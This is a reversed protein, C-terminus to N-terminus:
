CAYANLPLSETVHLEPTLAAHLCNAPLCFGADGGIVDEEDCIDCRQHHGEGLPFCPGRYCM